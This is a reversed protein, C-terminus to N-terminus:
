RNSSIHQSAHIFFTLDCQNSRTGFDGDGKFGATANGAITSITGDAAVKRIVSSYTDAIYLLGSSDLAIGQPFNVAAVSAQGTDGFYASFGNGAVTTISYAQAHSLTPLGLAMAAFLSVASLKM